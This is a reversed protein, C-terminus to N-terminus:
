STRCGAAGCRRRSRRRRFEADPVPYSLADRLTGLPLYPRQPLFAISADQPLRIAGSGWPWLGALARILTSKGSGSEGGLMVKEGPAITTSADKIM